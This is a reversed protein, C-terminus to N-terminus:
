QKVVKKTVVGKKTIVEVMYVGKDLNSGISKTAKTSEILLGATNYINIESISSENIEIETTNSFPNPFISINDELTGEVGAVVTQISVCSPSSELGDNDVSVACIEYDGADGFALDLTYTGNGDNSVGEQIVNGEQTITMGAIEGDTDNGEATITVSEAGEGALVNSTKSANITVTPPACNNVTAVVPVRPCTAGTSIRWDFIGAYVRVDLWGSYGYSTELSMINDFEYPYDFKLYGSEGAPVNSSQGYFIVINPNVIKLYYIGPTSIELDLAYRIAVDLGGQFPKVALTKSSVVTGSTGILTGNSNFEVDKLLQIEFTKDASSGNYDPFITVSDITLAQNVQMKMAFESPYTIYNGNNTGIGRETLGIYETQSGGTNQVYYTKTSTPSVQFDNGVHVFSGGDQQEFWSYPGGTSNIVLNAENGNCIEDGTVSLASPSAEISATQSPCNGGPDSITVEYTGVTNFSLLAANSVTTSGRKWVYNLGPINVEADIEVTEGGCLPVGNGLDPADFQDVISVISTKTCTTGNKTAAVEYTGGTTATYTSATAGNIVQNNKKWVYSVGSLGASLQISSQGCIIQTSGLDPKQCGAVTIADDVAKLLSYQGSVDQSIEWIMVGALGETIALTTKAGITAQGNYRWNGLSNGGAAAAGGYQSVLQNYKIQDNRSYAWFRSRGYFALGLVMKNKPLQKTNAWYDIANDARDTPSHNEFDPTGYDYAMLNFYDVYQYSGSTVGGNSPVGQSGNFGEPFVAASLQLYPARADIETRLERVLTTFQNASTGILPEWDIDIGDLGYQICLDVTSKAFTKSANTSSGITKFRAALNDDAGGISINVRINPNLTQQYKVYNVFTQFLGLQYADSFGVTNNTKPEAFAYNIDTLKDYQVSTYAQEWGAYYGIVRQAFTSATAFLMAILLLSLRKM